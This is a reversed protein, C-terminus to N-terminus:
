IFNFSISLSKAEIWNKLGIAYFEAVLFFWVGRRKCYMLIGASFGVGM